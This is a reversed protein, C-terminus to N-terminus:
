KVETIERLSTEKLQGALQYHNRRGTTALLVVRVWISKWTHTRPFWVYVPLVFSFARPLIVFNFNEPILIHIM